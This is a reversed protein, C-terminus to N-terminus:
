SWIAFKEETSHFYYSIIKMWCVAINFVTSQVFPEMCSLISPIHQSVDGCIQECESNCLDKEICDLM